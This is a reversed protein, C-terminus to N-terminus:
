FRCMHTVTVVTTKMMVAVALNNRRLRSARMM